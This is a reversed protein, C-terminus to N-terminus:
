KKKVIQVIDGILALLCFTTSSGRIFSMWCPNSMEREINAMLILFYMFIFCMKYVVFGKM